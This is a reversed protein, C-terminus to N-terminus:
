RKKGFSGKKAAGKKGKDDVKRKTGASPGGTSPKMTFFSDMRQQSKKQQAKTLRNIGPIPSLSYPLTLKHTLSTSFLLAGWVCGCVCPVSVSLFFAGSEVRDAGFGMKEVLYARLGPIDPETWTLKCDAHPTIDAAVFLSRAQVFQPPIIELDSPDIEEEEEEEEVAAEVEVKKVEEEEKAKEEEKADEEDLPEEVVVEDDPLSPTFVTDVAEPVDAGFASAGAEEAPASNFTAAVAAAAAVNAAAQEKAMEADKEERAKREAAAMEEALAMAKKSM